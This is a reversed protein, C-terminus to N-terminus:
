NMTLMTGQKLAEISMYLNVNDSVVPLLTYIGYESRKITTTAKVTIRESFKDDSDADVLEVYFAVPRTVDQITMYGKLVAKSKDFWEFSSGVFRVSPFNEVDFFSESKLMTSVFGTDSDLSDANIDVIASDSHMDGSFMAFSGKFDEFSAWVEGVPSDVRFAITSTDQQIEYSYENMILTVNTLQHEGKVKNDDSDIALDANVATSAIM